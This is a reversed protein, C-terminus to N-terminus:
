YASGLDVLYFMMNVLLFVLNCSILDLIKELSPLFNLVFQSVFWVSSGVFKLKQTGNWLGYFDPITCRSFYQFWWCLFHLFFFFFCLSLSICFFSSFTFASLSFFDNGHYRPNIPSSRPPKSLFRFILFSLASFFVPAKQHTSKSLSLLSNLHSWFHIKNVSPFQHFIIPSFINLGRM